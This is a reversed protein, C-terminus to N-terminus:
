SMATVPNPETSLTSQNDLDSSSLANNWDSSRSLSPDDVKHSSFNLPTSQTVPMM